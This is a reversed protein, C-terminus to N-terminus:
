VERERVEKDGSTWGMKEAYVQEHAFFFDSDGLDYGIGDDPAWGLEEVTIENIWWPMLHKM